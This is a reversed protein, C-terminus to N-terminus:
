ASLGTIDAELRAWSSRGNGSGRFRLGCYNRFRKNPRWQCRKQREGTAGTSIAAEQGWTRGDMTMSLYATPQSGVPAYGVLGILEINNLIGGNSENYLMLTDFQWGRADGFYTDLTVDLYGIRGDATDGIWQGNVLTLHRLPFAQDNGSGSRLEYWIPEGALQSAEMCYVLSRDPLHVILRQEDRWELAEVEVLALDTPSLAALADDVIITSINVAQGGGALWVSPACNQGMGVFGYTEMFYSWAHTGVAGKSIFAGPNRQYPFGSGGVNRFNEITQSGVANMEGRIHNLAVIPDPSVEASGYDNPDVAYPDNLDTLVIASGDATVFRGDLFMQDLVVGLDPDTVQTLASGDWYYLNQSSAISLRDFSNDLTVPLGNDGVDGLVTFTTGDLRGLKSGMVRYHVGNWVRGGRGAGMGPAALETIGPTARLYGKSIGTDTIVPEYNIPLSSRFDANPDAVIGRLIPLATM